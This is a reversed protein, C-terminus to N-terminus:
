RPEAMAGAERPLGDAAGLRITPVAQSPALNWRAPWDPTAELEFEEEVVAPSSPAFQFRGCMGRAYPFPRAGM